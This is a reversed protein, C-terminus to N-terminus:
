RVQQNVDNPLAKSDFLLTKGKRDDDKFVLVRIEDQALHPFPRELIAFFLFYSNLINTSKM